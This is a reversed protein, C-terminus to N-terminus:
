QSSALHVCVFQRALIQSVDLFEGLPPTFNNDLLLPSLIPRSQLHSEILHLLDSHGSDASQKGSSEFGSGVLVSLTQALLLWAGVTSARTREGRLFPGDDGCTAGELMAFGGTM